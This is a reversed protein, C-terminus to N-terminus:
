PQYEIFDDGCSADPNAYHCSFRGNALINAQQNLYIVWPPYPVGPAPQCLAGPAPPYFVNGAPQPSQNLETVSLAGLLIGAPMAPAGAPTNTRCEEWPRMPYYMIHHGDGAQADSRGTGDDEIWEDQAVLTCPRPPAQWLPDAMWQRPISQWLSGYDEDCSLSTVPFGMSNFCQEGNPTVFAILPCCPLPVYRNTATTIGSWAGTNPRPNLPNPDDPPSCSTGLGDHIGHIRENEGIDRYNYTWTVTCFDGQPANTDWQPDASTPSSAWGRTGAQGGWGAPSSNLSFQTDSQRTITWTANATLEDCGQVVVSDGSRLFTSRDVTTSIPSTASAATVAVRGRIAPASPWRLKGFFNYDSTISAPLPCVQSQLQFQTSSIRNVTYVGNGTGPGIAICTDGSGIAATGPSGISVTNGSVSAICWANTKDPVYRDRGGPRAFNHSRTPFIVEAYKAKVLRNALQRIGSDPDYLSSYAAFAGQYLFRSTFSDTWQTAHPYPSPAGYSEVYWIYRQSSSSFCLSWNKHRFDWFAGYGPPNPVGLVQGTVPSADSWNPDTSVGPPTAQNEDYTVLPGNTTYADTRWPYQADDALNWTALLGDVEANLNDSTYPIRLTGGVTITTTSDVAPVNQDQSPQTWTHAVQSYNVTTASMSIITVTVGITNGNTSDGEENFTGAPMDLNLTVKENGDPSTFVAGQVGNGGTFSYGWAPDLAGLRQVEDCYAARLGVINLTGLGLQGVANQHATGDAPVDTSGLNQNVGSHQDIRSSRTVTCTDPDEGAVELTWTSSVDLRLYKTTDPSDQRSQYDCGCDATMRDHPLWEPSTFGWMGHWAKWAFVNKFGAKNRNSFDVTSPPSPQAYTNAPVPNPIDCLPNPPGCAPPNACDPLFDTGNGDNPRPYPAIPPGGAYNPVTTTNNYVPYVLGPPNPPPAFHVAAIAIGDDVPDLAHGTENTGITGRYVLMYNAAQPGPDCFVFNRVAGDALSETAGWPPQLTNVLARNADLTNDDFYLQFTGGYLNTGSTNTVALHILNDNNTRFTAVVLRGRFFYDLIGASYEIAKAILNTHYDHLVNPDNISLAAEMGPGADKPTRLVTFYHLASHNAVIVGAGLKALYPRLGQMGNELTVLGLTTQSVRAPRLQPWDTNKLSPLPFYHFSWHTFFEAYLTDEGLYNGNSFEALGLKAQADGRADADLAGPNGNTYRGTDWFDLLRSFGQAQWYLWATPHQQPPFADPLNLYVNVGYNEILRHAPWFHEDNRAHDPQSLDQNLHLIHGLAYFTRALNAQRDNFVRNTLASFEYDRASPWGYVNEEAPSWPPWSPWPGVADRRTGWIYSNIINFPVPLATESFDAMGSAQGPTRTASVMYFHDVSRARDDEHHSGWEVWRGPGVNATVDPSDFHLEPFEIFPAFQAGVVNTLFESFRVSDLYARHSIARHM